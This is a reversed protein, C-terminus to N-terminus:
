SDSEAEDDDDAASRGREPAAEVADGAVREVPDVGAPDVGAFDSEVAGTGQRAAFEGELTEIRRLLYDLAGRRELFCAFAEYHQHMGQPALAWVGPALAHLLQAALFNLPRTMELAIVAPTSLHRRAVQECFWEVAVAEDESPEAPGPPDVAFAFRLADWRNSM